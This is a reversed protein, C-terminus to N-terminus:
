THNTPKQAVQFLTIRLFQAAFSGSFEEANFLQKAFHHLLLTLIQSLFPKLLLYPAQLLPLPRELLVPM